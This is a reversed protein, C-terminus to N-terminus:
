GPAYRPQPLTQLADREVNASRRRSFGQQLRLAQPSRDFRGGRNIETEDLLRDTNFGALEAVAEIHLSPARRRGLTHSLPVVALEVVGGSGLPPSLVLRCPRPEIRRIPSISLRDFAADVGGNALRHSFELPM